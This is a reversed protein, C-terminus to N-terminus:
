SPGFVTLQILFYKLLTPCCVNNSSVKLCTVAPMYLSNLPHTANLSLVLSDHLHHGVPFHLGCSGLFLPQHLFLSQMCNLYKHTIEFHTSVGFTSIIVVEIM